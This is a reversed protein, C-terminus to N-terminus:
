KARWRICKTLWCIRWSRLIIDGHPTGYFGGVAYKFTPLFYIRHYKKWRHKKDIVGRLEVEWALFSAEISFMTTDIINNGFWLEISPLFSFSGGKGAILQHIWKHKISKNIM